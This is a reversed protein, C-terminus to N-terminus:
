YLFNDKGDGYIDQAIANRIDTCWSPSDLNIDRNISVKDRWPNVLLIKRSNGQEKM